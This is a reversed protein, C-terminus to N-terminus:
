MEMFYFEGSDCDFIFEVTGAGRYGVARAAEVAKEGLRTCGLLPM